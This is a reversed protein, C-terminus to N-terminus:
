HVSLFLVRVGLCFSRKKTRVVTKKSDTRVRNKDFLVNVIRLLLVRESPCGRWLGYTVDISKNHPHTTHASDALMSM